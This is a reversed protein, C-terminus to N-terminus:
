SGAGVAGALLASRLGPESTSSSLWIAFFRQALAADDIAGLVQTGRWLRLGRGPLYLGTLCEGPQVDPLLAALAQRWRQAQAPALAGQREIEDMSRQAIAAGSFARHYTLQLALPRAAFDAANFGSGVWLRADYIRLGFVRLLGQGALRAGPLAQAVTPPLDAAVPAVSASAAAVPPAEDAHVAAPMWVLGLVLALGLPCTRAAGPRRRLDRQALAAARNFACPKM